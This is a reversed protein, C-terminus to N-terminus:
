RRTLQINAARDGRGDGFPRGDDQNDDDSVMLRSVGRNIRESLDGLLHSSHGGGGFFGGSETQNEAIRGAEPNEAAGLAQYKGPNKKGYKEGYIFNRHIKLM